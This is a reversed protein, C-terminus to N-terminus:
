EQLKGRAGNLLKAALPSTPNEAHLADFERVAQENFGLSEYVTGLILHSDSHNRRAQSILRNERDSLVRFAAAKSWEWEALESRRSRVVWKYGGGRLNEAPRYSTTETEASLIPIGELDYVEVRYRAAGRVPEWRFEPRPEALSNPAPSIKKINITDEPGRLADPGKAMRFSPPVKGDRLKKEVLAALQSELDGGDSRVTLKGNTRGVTVGGDKLEAAFVQKPTPRPSPEPVSVSPAPQPTVAVVTPKPLPVAVPAAPANVQPAVPAAKVGPDTTVVPAKAIKVPEAPNRGADPFSLFVAAALAATGLATAAVRPWGFIFRSKRPAFHGPTVVTVPALSARSRAEQMTEVDRWCLECTGMHREITRYLEHALGGDVFASLDEYDPCEAVDLTVQGISWAAGKYARECAIRTRCESCVRIHESTTLIDEAPLLGHLYQKLRQENPCQM